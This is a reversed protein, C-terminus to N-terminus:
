VQMSQLNLTPYRLLCQLKKVAHGAAQPESGTCCQQWHCISAHEPQIVFVCRRKTVPTETDNLVYVLHM